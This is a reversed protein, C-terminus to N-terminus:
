GSLFVSSCDEVNDRIELLSEMFGDDVNVGCINFEIGFHMSHIM